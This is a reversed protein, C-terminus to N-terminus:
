RRRSRSSVLGLAARHQNVLAVVQQAFTTNNAPWAADPNCDGLGAAHAVGHSGTVPLFAAVAAVAALAIVARLRASRAPRIHM